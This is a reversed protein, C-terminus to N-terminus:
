YISLDGLNIEKGASGKILNAIQRARIAGAKSTSYLEQIEDITFDSTFITFVKKSARNSIIQFIIADRIFDTKFENGFDDVLALLLNNVINVLSKSISSISVKYLLM